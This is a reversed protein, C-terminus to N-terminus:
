SDPPSSCLIQLTQGNRREFDAFLTQLSCVAEAVPSKMGCTGQAMAGRFSFEVALLAFLVVLNYHLYHLHCTYM